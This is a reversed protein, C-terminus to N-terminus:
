CSEPGTSCTSCDIYGGCNAACFVNVCHKAILGNGCQINWCWNLDQETQDTPEAEPPPGGCGPVIALLVTVLGCSMATTFKMSSRRITSLHIM